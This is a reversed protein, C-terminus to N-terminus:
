SRFGWSVFHYLFVPVIPIVIIGYFLPSMEQIFMGVFRICFAFFALILCTVISDLLKPEGVQNGAGPEITIGSEEARERVVANASSDSVHQRIPFFSACLMSMVLFACGAEFFSVGEKARSFFQVAQGLYKFTFFAVGLLICIDLTEEM